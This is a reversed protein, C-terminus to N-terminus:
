FPNNKIISLKLVSLRVLLLAEISNRNVNSEERERRFSTSSAPVSTIRM